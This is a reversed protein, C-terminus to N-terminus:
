PKIRRRLKTMKRPLEIEEPERNLAAAYEYKLSSEDWGFQSLDVGAMYIMLQSAIKKNKKQMIMRKLSTEWLLSKWPARDLQMEMESIKSVIPKLKFGIDMLSRIAFSIVSIGVPRFLLHGGQDHRYKSAVNASAPKDLIEQLPNFYEIM